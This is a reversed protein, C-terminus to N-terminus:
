QGWYANHFRLQEIPLILVNELDTHKAIIQEEAHLFVWPAEEWIIEQAKGYAEIREEEDTTSTGQILAEDVEPNDYFGYNSGAPPAQDSLFMPYLMQDGDLIWPGWGLLYMNSETEEIPKRIFELYAAWEMTEMEVDIGVDALYGQIAEAIRRDMLYRGEPHHFTMEFGDEYGAEALLERAKDPDFEYPGVQRHPFMEPLLPSDLPRGADHLIAETIEEKDVAYNLAQRVRPDSLPEFTVNLGAYIARTSPANIVEIHEEADLRDADLPPVRVIIDVDGAELMAMRTGDEPVPVFTITEFGPEEGWYDPNRELVLETGPVWEALKFAGSGVPNRSFDDGYEEVAEPSVMANSAATLRSLFPAHPYKLNIKVTYEDIVEASEAMDIYSRLLVPTDPDLLREINYKVVEANFPTGDTFVVDDRLEFTYELGDDSITWDEALRPVINFDEDLTVLTDFIHETIIAAPTSAILHPDLDEVDTGQAVVLDDRVLVEEEDDVDVPEEPEDVEEEDPEAPAECGIVLVSVLLLCLLFVLSKRLVFGEEYNFITKSKLLYLNEM